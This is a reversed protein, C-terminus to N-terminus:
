AAATDRWWNTLKKGRGRNYAEVVAAGLCVGKGNGTSRKLVEAKQEIGAAGGPSKRLADVLRKTEVLNGYRRIVLGVGGIMAASFGTEGFAEQLILLTRGLGGEGAEKYITMLAGVASIKRKGFGIKLPSPDDPNNLSDVVRQIATEDPWGANVAIRFKDLPHIPKNKARHLFLDAEQKETLGVYCECEVLDEDAFGIIKLASIRHQGDVIWWTNDRYNLVPYGMRELNFDAAMQEAWVPQYKRQASPTVRMDGLAIFRNTSARQASAPPEVPAKPKRTTTTPLIKV